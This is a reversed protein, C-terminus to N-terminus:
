KKKNKLYAIERVLKTIEERQNESKKYLFYIILYSIFISTYILFNIASQIGFITEFVKLLDPYIVVSLIFTYITLYFLEILVHVRSSTKFGYILYGLVILSMGVFFVSFTDM